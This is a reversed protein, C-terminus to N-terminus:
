RRQSRARAMERQQQREVITRRKDHRRKGKGLGVEVKAKGDRFYMQTPVLTLGEERIRGFLRDIERRHLLLKRQREPDHGGGEAFSYPSIHANVLWVEGDRIDAYSDKLQVHGARLSKVESGRLVIGAEFTDLIEYNFRAQRNSAVVKRGSM